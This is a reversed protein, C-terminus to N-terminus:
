NAPKNIINEKKYKVDNWQCKDEMTNFLNVTMRIKTERKIIYRKNRQGRKLNKEKDSTTMMHNHHRKDHNEKHEVAWPENLKKPKCTKMFNSFHKAMIEEYKRGGGKM